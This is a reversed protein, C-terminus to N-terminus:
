PCGSHTINFDIGWFAIGFLWICRPTPTSVISSGSSLKLHPKGGIVVHHLRVTKGSDDWDLVALRWDNTEGVAADRTDQGGIIGPLNGSGISAPAIKADFFTQVEITASNALPAPTGTLKKLEFCKTPIGAVLCEDLNIEVCEAGSSPINYATSKWKKGNSDIGIAYFEINSGNKKICINAGVSTGVTYGVHKGWPAAALATTAKYKAADEDIKTLLRVFDDGTPEREVVVETDAPPITSPDIVVPADKCKPCFLECSSMGIVLFILVSFKVSRKM